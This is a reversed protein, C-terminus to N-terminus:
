DNEKTRESAFYRRSSVVDGNDDITLEQSYTANASNVEVDDENYFKRIVRTM